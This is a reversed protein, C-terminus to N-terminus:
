RQKIGSQRERESAYAAFIDICLNCYYYTGPCRSLGHFPPFSLFMCVLLLLSVLLFLVSVLSFSFVCQCVLLVCPRLFLFKQVFLLVIYSGHVALHHFVIM